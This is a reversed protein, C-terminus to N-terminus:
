RNEGQSLSSYHQSRIKGTPSLRQLDNAIPNLQVSSKTGRKPEGLLYKQMAYDNPYRAIAASKARGSPVSGM